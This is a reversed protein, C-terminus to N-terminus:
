GSHMRRLPDREELLRQYYSMIRGAVQDWGYDQAHARGRHGMSRRLDPNDILQVMASALAQHNKPEVLLGEAGDTVVSAYGPIDSAIVPKGAAMAELLVIGFSEFGTAPSCFIDATQYYRPLEAYSVPGILEVDELAREGLISASVPDLRGPGVVLLRIQPYEWKLRAYASLLHALGKRKEMRGVFLINVKGDRFREIPPASAGFHALDIGNPIINFYGPFYRAVLEEAPKSVAIKGHLKRFWRKFLPRWARYGRSRRRYAHFTGVNITKSYRLVALPLAPMFPEHLHVVDFDEDELLRRVRPGRHFSLTVRVVTGNIPVPIPKGIAVLNDTGLQDPSKSSPAVITTRHGMAQFKTSLSEIHNNVGGPYAWDYPSVLAIKM